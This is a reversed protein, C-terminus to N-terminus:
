PQERKDDISIRRSSHASVKVSGGCPLTLRHFKGVGDVLQNRAIKATKNAQRESKKADAYQYAAIVEAQSALRHPRDISKKEWDPPAPSKWDAYKSCEDSDDIEPVENGVLFRERFDRLKMALRAIAKRVPSDDPGRELRYTRIEFWPLLAVITVHRLTPVAALQHIAQVTWAQVPFDAMNLNGSSPLSPAIKSSFVVKIEFHGEPQEPDGITADPSMRLWQIRPHRYVTFSHHLLDLGSRQRYMEVVAPELTQGDAAFQGAPKILHQAKHQAWVRWPGAYRSVGLIAPSDSAGLGFGSRRKDLWEKREDINM